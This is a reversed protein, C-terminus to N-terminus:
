TVQPCREYSWEFVNLYKVNFNIKFLKVVRKKYELNSHKILKKKIVILVFKKRMLQVM